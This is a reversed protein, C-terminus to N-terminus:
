GRKRGFYSEYVDVPNEMVEGKDGTEALWNDLTKRM